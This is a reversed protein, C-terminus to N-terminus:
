ASLEIPFAVEVLILNVPPLDNSRHVLMCFQLELSHDVHDCSRHLSRQKRLSADCLDPQRATLRRQPSIDCAQRCLQRCQRADRVHADGGVANRQRALQGIESRCTLKCDAVICSPASAHM